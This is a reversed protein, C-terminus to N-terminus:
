YSYFYIGRQPLGKMLNAVMGKYFGRFGEGQVMKAIVERVNSYKAETRNNFYQNQQIRTRITTLPYTFLITILKSLSGCFFTKESFRSEPISFNVYLRKSGEYIYMQMVGNFSLLLSVGLGKTFGKYGSQQYIERTKLIANEIEGIHPQINLLMRTKIVWIPQTILTALVSAEISSYSVASM